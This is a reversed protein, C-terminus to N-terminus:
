GQSPLNLVLTVGADLLDIEMGAEAEPETSFVPHLEKYLLVSLLPKNGVLALM